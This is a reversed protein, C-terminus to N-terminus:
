AVVPVADLHAEFVRIDRSGSPGIRVVPGNQGNAVALRTRSGLPTVVKVPTQLGTLEIEARNQEFCHLYLVHKGRIEKRTVRGWPLPKPFPSAQTGYISNGNRRMWTGMEQLRQVSASPIEGNGDPGVNLLYNGGKSAIDILNRLLLDTSKWNSDDKKFGWTDNMTMCSEWDVGPLGSPPIEQEPTGFDGAYQDGITLGQMGNRGKDVRNNILIDRQLSRVYNYLDKGHAHTWTPEWEGDFWLVGLPGYRTVLERIQSKMYAIYRNFDAGSTSRQDWSRRPLYDPHHWDMISHYLCFRIGHRKCATSLEALADRGFPTSAVDWDTTDSKWLCFGDHHKSTIVLYRMGAEKALGAWRDADFKAATFRDKLPLYEDVPIRGNTLLWEGASPLSKGNWYGGATSYIGWHIFMGFRAERFWRMRREHDRKDADDSRQDPM